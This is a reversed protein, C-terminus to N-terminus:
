PQVVGWVQPKAWVLIEKWVRLCNKRLAFRVWKAGHKARSSRTRCGCEGTFLQRGVMGLGMRAPNTTHECQRRKAASPLPLEEEEVATM